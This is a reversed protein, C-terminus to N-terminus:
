PESLCTGLRVWKRTEPGLCISDGFSGLASLEESNLAFLARVAPLGGARFLGM